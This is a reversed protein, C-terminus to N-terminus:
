RAPDPAAVERLWAAVADLDVPKRMVKTFKARDGEGLTHGTIAMVPLERPAAIERLQQSLGRGDADPLSLDLLVARIDNVRLAELADSGSSVSTVRFGFIELFEQYALRTDEDDEVILVM